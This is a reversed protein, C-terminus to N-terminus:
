QQTASRCRDLFEAAIRSVQARADPTQRDQVGPRPGEEVMGVHMQQDGGAAEGGISGPPDCRLVRSIQDRYFASDTM